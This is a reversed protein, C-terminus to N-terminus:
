TQHSQVLLLLFLGILASTPIWGEHMKSQIDVHRVKVVESTQGESSIVEVPSELVEVEAGAPILCRTTPVGLFKRGAIELM